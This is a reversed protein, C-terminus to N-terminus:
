KDAFVAKMKNWSIQILDETLTRAHKARQAIIADVIERNGEVSIPLMEPAHRYALYRYRLSQKGISRLLRSLTSNGSALHIQDTLMVNCRFYERPDQTRFAAELDALARKLAAIDADSRHQAATEAALAELALRCTYVEDLDALSIPSVRVGRRSERTVLGDQELLRFSERVPSRSVDHKRVLDEEILREGPALDGYVIQEELHRALETAIVAPVRFVSATRPAPTGADHSNDM